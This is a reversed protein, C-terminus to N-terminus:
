VLGLEKLTYEKDIEMGAYMKTSPSFNPLTINEAVTGRENYLKIVLYYENNLTRKVVKINYKRVYPKILTSLYDKEIEDLVEIPEFIKGFDAGVRQIYASLTKECESVVTGNKYGLMDMVGMTMIIAEGLKRDTFDSASVEGRRIKEVMTEVDKRTIEMGTKM